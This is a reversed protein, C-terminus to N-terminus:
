THGWRFAHDLLDVNAKRWSVVDTGFINEMIERIKAYM